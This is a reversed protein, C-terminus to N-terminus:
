KGAPPTLNQTPNQAPSQTLSQTLNQTLSPLVVLGDFQFAFQVDVYADRALFDKCSASQASLDRPLGLLPLPQKAVAGDDSSLFLAGLTGRVTLAKGAADWVVHSLDRAPLTCVEGRSTARVELADMAFGLYGDGLAKKLAGGARPSAVFGGGGKRGAIMGAPGGPMRGFADDDRAVLSAHAWFVGKGKEGLSAQWSQISEAMGENRERETAPAKLRASSAAYAADYVARRDDDFGPRKLLYVDENFPSFFGMRSRFQVVAVRAFARQVDSEPLGGEGVIDSLKAAASEYAEFDAEIAEILFEGSNLKDLTVDQNGYKKVFAFLLELANRADVGFPAFLAPLAGADCRFVQAPDIGVLFAEAALGFRPQNAVCDERFLSRFGHSALVGNWIATRVASAEVSSYGVHGLGIVTTAKRSDLLRGFSTAWSTVPVVKVPLVAAENTPSENVQAASVNGAVADDQFDRTRCSSLCVAGLMTVLALGSSIRPSASVRAFFDFSRSNM